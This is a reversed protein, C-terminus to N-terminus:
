QGGHPIEYEQTQHQAYSKEWSSASVCCNGEGVFHACFNREIKSWRETSSHPDNSKSDTLEGALDADQFFKVQM